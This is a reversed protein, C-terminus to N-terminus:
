MWYTWKQLGIVYGALCVNTVAHALIADGLSKTRILWINYAVGALLGVEWFPGHETAFLLATVWFAMSSYTGLPVGLFEARILYRM